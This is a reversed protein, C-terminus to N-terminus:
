AKISTQALTQISQLWTKLMQVMLRQGLGLGSLETLWWGSLRNFRRLQEAQEQMLPLILYWM